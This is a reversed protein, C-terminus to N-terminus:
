GPTQDPSLVADPAPAAWTLWRGHTDVPGLNLTAGPPWLQLTITSGNTQGDWEMALRAIPAQPTALAGAAALLAEGRQRTAEPLYQWVVTHYILHLQGLRPTLRGALWDVADGRDVQPRLRAALDLAAATRALRDPQDPWIYSLIRVRDAVPDLPNLDVGARSTIRPQNALPLPGQWDPALTVTAAAPGFRQGALQLAFSDWLLNLGASAGLESLVLPLKHRATLWRAAAILGASRRVENTQPASDLWHHLQAARGAMAATILVWFADDTFASPARYAAALGPEQGSLVLAHLGGALRLAVADRRLADASGPWRYLRDAVPGGAVPGGPTLRDALLRLLRATLPSGMRACDESQAAFAAALTM